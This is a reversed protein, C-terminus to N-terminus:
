GVRVRAEVVEAGVAVVGPDASVVLLAGVDALAFGQAGLDGKFGGGSGEVRKGVPAEALANVEVQYTSGLQM